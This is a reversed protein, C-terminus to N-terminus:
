GEVPVRVSQLPTSIPQTDFKLSPTQGRGPLSSSATHLRLSIKWQNSFTLYIYSPDMISSFEVKCSLPSAIRSFDTFELVGNQLVIKIYDKVGVLFQFFTTCIKDNSLYQQLTKAVLMCVPCYLEKNIFNCDLDKLESFLTASPCLKKGASYFDSFISSLSSRYSLDPYSKKPFGLQQMLSPPRQHKFAHSNNKISLNLIRGNATTVRIDTVDGDKADDDPLRDVRAAGIAFPQATLVRALTEAAHLFDRSHGADLTDFKVKDRVQDQIARTTLTAGYREALCKVIAYEFARGTQDSISM